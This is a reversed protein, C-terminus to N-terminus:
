QKDFVILLSVDGQPSSVQVDSTLTKGDASLTMHDHYTLGYDSVNSVAVISSGDWTASCTVNAGQIQQDAPKGDTTITRTNVQKQGNTEQDDVIILSPDKHTIKRTFSTPVPVPGYVSKAANMKWEGSFDPKDAALSSGSAIFLALVVLLAHKM